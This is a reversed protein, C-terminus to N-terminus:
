TIWQNALGIARWKGDVKELLVDCGSYGIIVAARAKTREVSTFEIESIAPYTLFEWGGWHGPRAEFFRALFAIINVSPGIPQNPTEMVARPERKKTGGLKNMMEALFPIQDGDLFLVNDLGPFRQPFSVRTPLADAFKVAVDPNVVVFPPLAKPWGFANWGPSKSYVTGGTPQFVLSRIEAVDKELASAPERLTQRVRWEDLAERMARDAEDSRGQQSLVLAKSIKAATVPFDYPEAALSDLAAVGATRNAEGEINMTELADYLRAKHALYQAEAMNSSGPYRKAFDALLRDAEKWKRRDILSRAQELVDGGTGVTTRQLEDIRATLADFRVETPDRMLAFVDTTAPRKRPAQFSYRPAYDDDWGEAAAKYEALAERSRGLAEFARAAQAHGLVRALALSSYSRAAAQYAAAAGKWDGQDALSEGSRLAAVWAYDSQPYLRVYDRYYQGARAADGFYRYLWALAALAKRQHLPDGKGRLDTLLAVGKGSPATAETGSETRGPQGVYLMARLYHAAGAQVDSKELSALFQDVAEVGEGKARHFEVMKSVVLFGIGNQPDDDEAGLQATVFDRCGALLRDLNGPAYVPKYAYLLTAESLPSGSAVGADCGRYPPAELQRVIDFVQLFRDTPDQGAPWNNTLDFAKRRLASAAVCTGAHDRAFQDFANVRRMPDGSYGVTGGLLDLEARLAAETGAYASVVAKLPEATNRNQGRNLWPEARALEYAAEAAQARPLSATVKRADELIERLEPRYDRARFAEFSVMHQLLTRLMEPVAEPHEKVIGRMLRLAIPRCERGFRTDAATALLADLTEVSGPSQKLLLAARKLRLGALHTTRLPSDYHPYDALVLTTTPKPPAQGQEEASRTGPILLLVLIAALPAPSMRKM